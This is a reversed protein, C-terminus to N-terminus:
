PYSGPKINIPKEYEPCYCLGCDWPLKTFANVYVHGWGVYAWEPIYISVLIPMRDLESEGPPVNAYSAVATGIPVGLEDYIVITLTVNRPTMAWNKITTNIFVNQLEEFDNRVVSMSDYLKVDIIEIIWHVYFWHEDQVWAGGDWGGIFVKAMATWNGFVIQEAHEDPWPITFNIVAIGTANTFAQRYITINHYPNLPGNVSFAVEKNAVPENNYTVKAYLIVLEQPAFTDVQRDVGPTSLADIGEGTYITTYGGFRYDQTYLDINRGVPPKTVTVQKVISGYPYYTPNPSPGPPAYVTLNVNYTGETAFVHTVPYPDSTILDITGDSEWDWMYQTIPCSQSGDFGGVSARADFTVTEGEKPYAPTWTFDATPPTPGPMLIEVTHDYPCDGALFNFLYEDYCDMDYIDIVTGGPPTFGMCEVEVRWVIKPTTIDWSNGLIGYTIAEIRGEAPFWDGILPSGGPLDNTPNATLKTVNVYSTNFKLSFAITTVKPRNQIKIDFTYKQGIPPPTPGMTKHDPDAFIATEDSPPYAAFTPIAFIGITLALVMLLPLIKKKM